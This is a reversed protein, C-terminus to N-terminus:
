LESYAKGRAWLNPWMTSMTNSWTTNTQQKNICTRMSMGQYEKGLEGWELMAMNTLAEASLKNPFNTRKHYM